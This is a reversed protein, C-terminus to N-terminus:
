DRPSPSTYLLCVGLIQIQVFNTDHPAFDVDTTAGTLNVFVDPGDSFRLRLQGISTEPTMDKAPAGHIEKALAVHIRGVTRSERLQIRFTRGSPGEARRMIWQTAPDGDFANAPRYWSETGTTTRPNGSLSISTADPFWARSQTAPDDFLPRSPRDLEQTDGLLYSYDPDHDIVVRLQRRNSDTVVLPSGSQLSSTLTPSDISGTYQVPATGALLGSAALGAWAQGDGSVLTSPQASTARMGPLADDIQYIEVPPLSRETTADKSIDKDGTTNEGRHGFTAVLKLSPDSRLGAYAAPRPRGMEQWDLDNRLVVESIGLRRLIPALTGVEYTPDSAGTSVAEILNAALPTSLPIGTAIAHNRTLMADFIDDGIWGWRYHTRSSSPLVLVRTDAPQEDLYRLASTWYDPVATMGRDGDYLGGTWFPVAGALIVLVAGALVVRRRGSHTSGARRALAAVGVGFLIAVGIALGAGAKYTNRFAQLSAVNTMLDLLFSGFPAPSTLPYAEVMLVLSCIAMWIFLIRPRWHSRWVVALAIIAPVFTALVVVPNVFYPEGQPKQISGGQRFYSLWNGLGRFSESWSSTISSVQPSETESLRQDFSGAAVVTKALAAASILLCLLGARGLWLLVGRVRVSRDIVLLYLTVPILPVMSYVLGPLDANGAVFVLLAFIAAWRWPRSETLGRWLAVIFWPALAVQFLLNSPVLFTASYAGFMVALGAVVHEIGISRRFLRLVAVTGVGLVVLVMAHWLRQSLVESLGLGRFVALPATTGPWFDDRVRGLGRSGDWLALTEALRRAPNSFQEYRNDRILVGFSNTVTAAAALASFMLTIPWLRERCASRFRTTRRQPDATDDIAQSSGSDSEEITALMEELAKM